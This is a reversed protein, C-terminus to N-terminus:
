PTETERRKVGKFRRWLSITYLGIVTWTVAYAAIVFGWGGVIM